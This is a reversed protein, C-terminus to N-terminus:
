KAKQMYITTTSTIGGGSETTAIQLESGSLRSIQYTGDLSGNNSITLTNDAKVWTGPTAMDTQCPGGGAPKFYVVENFVGATTFELYNKDCGTVDDEYQQTISQNGIKVVTRLQNWKGDITPAPGSDDSSCSVITMGALVFAVMLAKIKKM